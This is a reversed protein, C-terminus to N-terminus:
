EDDEALFHMRPPVGSAAASRNLEAKAKNSAAYIGDGAEDVLVRYVKAATVRAGDGTVQGLIALLVGAEEETLSLVVTPVEKLTTVEVFDTSRHAKAM